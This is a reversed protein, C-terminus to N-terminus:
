EPLGEFRIAKMVEAIVEDRLGDPFPVEALKLRSDWRFGRDSIFGGVKVLKHRKTEREQREYSRFRITLEDGLSTFCLFTWVHATLKAGDDYHTITINM